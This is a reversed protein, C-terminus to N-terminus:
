GQCEGQDKEQQLLLFMKMLCLSTCPPWFLRIWKRIVVMEYWILQTHQKGPLVYNSIWLKIEWSRHILCGSIGHLLPDLNYLDIERRFWNDLFEVVIESSSELYFCEASECYHTERVFEPPHSTYLIINFTATAPLTWDPCLSDCRSQSVINPVTKLSIRLVNTRPSLDKLTWNLQACLALAEGAEMLYLNQLKLGIFIVSLSTGEPLGDALSDLVM